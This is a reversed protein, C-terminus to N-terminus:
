ALRPDDGLDNAADQQSRRDHAANGTERGGDKGGRRHRVQVQDSIQSQDQEQEQDPKLGVHTEDGGVPSHGQAHARGAHDQGKAQTAGDGPTEVILKPSFGARDMDSEADIHEEDAHGHGDRHSSRGQPSGMEAGAGLRQGPRDM